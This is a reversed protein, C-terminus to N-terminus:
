NVISESPAKLLAADVDGTRPSSAEVITHTEARAPAAARRTRIPRDIFHYTLAALMVAVATGAALTVPWAHHNERLWYMVPVHWLYIGYSIRGIYALPTWSLLSSEFESHVATLVLTAACVEAVPVAIALGVHRGWTPLAVLAALVTLSALGAHKPPAKTRMLALVCGLIIGSARTDFRFYSADWGLVSWNLIRWLTALLYVLVMAQIPKRLRLVFPLFLPWLVYFHEEVALSWTYSLVAPFTFFAKAYDTLYVGSILVYQWAPPKAILYPAALAIAALLLLFMPYLRLARRWYFHLLKIHGHEALEQALIKTILFGSLVFFVDVGVYGGNAWPAMSHFALVMGIAVARIGDLAPVYAIKVQPDKEV